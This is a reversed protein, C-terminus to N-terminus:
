YRAVWDVFRRLEVVARKYEQFEREALKFERTHVCRRAGRHQTPFRLHLMEHFMVYKVLLEPAKESDLLRTL